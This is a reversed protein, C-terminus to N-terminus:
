SAGWLKGQRNTVDHVQHLDLDGWLGWGVVILSDSTRAVRAILKIPGKEILRWLCPRYSCQDQPHLPHRHLDPDSGSWGGQVGVSVHFGVPLHSVMEEEM